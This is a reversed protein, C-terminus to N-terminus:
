GELAEPPEDTWHAPTATLTVSVGALVSSPLQDANSERHHSAESKGRRKTSEFNPQQILFDNLCSSWSHLQSLGLLPRSPGWGCLSALSGLSM